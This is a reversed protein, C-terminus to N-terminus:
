LKEHKIKEAKAEENSIIDAKEIRKPADDDVRKGFIFVYDEHTVDIVITQPLKYKNNYTISRIM